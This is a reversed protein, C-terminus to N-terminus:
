ISKERRPIGKGVKYVFFGSNTRLTESLYQRDTDKESYALLHTDELAFGMSAVTLIALCILTMELSLPTKGGYLGQGWHM